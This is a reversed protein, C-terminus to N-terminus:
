EVSNIAKSAMKENMCWNKKFVKIKPAETQEENPLCNRWFQPHAPDSGQTRDCMVLGRQKCYFSGLM